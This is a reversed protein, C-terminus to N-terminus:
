KEFVSYLKEVVLMHPLTLVSIAAFLLSVLYEEQGFANTINYVFLIGIYSLLSYIFSEKYFWGFNLQNENDNLYKLMVRVHNYSHWMGFYISFAWVPDAFLFLASVAIADVFSSVFEKSTFPRFAAILLFCVPYFSAVFYATSETSVFQQTFNVLSFDTISEIVGSAYEIDGYAILGVITFGRSFHMLRKKWGDLNYRETDAQGFHYWTIIMFLAFSFLPYFVWLLSYIAVLGIYWSYFWIKKSSDGHWSGLKESIIHDIAGHPMGVLLIVLGLVLYRTNLTFDPAFISLGIAAFAIVAQLLLRFRFAM